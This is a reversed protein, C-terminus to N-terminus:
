GINTKRDRYTINLMNEERKAQAAALPNKAQSMNGRRMDNSSTRMLQLSTEEHMNGKFTVRSSTATSPSHQGDPRPEENLRRTKERQHQTETGPLHLLTNNVYILTDKETMVKTKSKKMEVGQNEHEDALEQLMQQLEHPTNAYILIDITLGRSEWTMYAKSHHRLCSPLYPIERCVGRRINIKNNEKHIHVTMSSNTYINKPLEIYM